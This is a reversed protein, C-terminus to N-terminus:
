EEPRLEAVVSVEVIADGALEAVGIGSWIPYPERVFENHVRVITEIHENLGVHYSTISVVDNWSSGAADLTRGVDAFASRVKAEVDDGDEDTHGSLYLRSGVRLAPSLRYNRQTGEWGVPTITVRESM